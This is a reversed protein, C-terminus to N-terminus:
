RTLVEITLTFAFTNSALGTVLVGAQGLLLSGNYALTIGNLGGDNNSLSELNGGITVNGGINTVRSTLRRAASKNIDAGATVYGILSTEIIAASNAPIDLTVFVTPTNNATTGTFLRTSNKFNYILTGNREIRLRETQDTYLLLPAGNTYLYATTNSDNLGVQFNKAFGGTGFFAIDNVFSAPDSKTMTIRNNIGTSTINVSGVVSLGSSVLNSSNLDKCYIDVLGVNSPNSLNSISM